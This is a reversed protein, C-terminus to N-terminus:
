TDSTPGTTSLDRHFPAISKPSAFQPNDSFVHLTSDLFHDPRSELNSDFFVPIATLQMVVPFRTFATFDPVSIKSFIHM